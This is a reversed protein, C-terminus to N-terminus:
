SVNSVINSSLFINILLFLTEDERLFLIGMSDADSKFTLNSDFTTEILILKKYASRRSQTNFHPIITKKHYLFNNWDDTTKSM